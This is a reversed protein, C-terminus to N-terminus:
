ETVGRITTGPFRSFDELIHQLDKKGSRGSYLYYARDPHVSDTESSWLTVSLGKEWHYDMYRFGAYPLFISNGNPGTVREGLVGRLCGREWQCHERLENIEQRTPMRWTGGMNISAADDSPELLSKGTYYKTLVIKDENESYYKLNAPSYSEKESVEGWAFYSGYEWPEKAGVNCRAWKIGSPLGLDVYEVGGARGGGISVSLSPYRLRLSDAIFTEQIERAKGPDEPIQETTTPSSQSSEKGWPYLLACIGLVICIACTVVLWKTIKNNKKSSTSQSFTVPSDITAQTDGGSWRRLDDFFKKKQLADTYQINNAGGFYMLFINDLPTDDMKVLVIKKKKSLAYSLERITWDNEFDIGIHRATHMFLFIDANDIARCIVSAFQESTEIKALDYWCEAGTETEIERICRQVLDFDARKYSVFLKLM